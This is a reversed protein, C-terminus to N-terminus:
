GPFRTALTLAAVKQSGFGNNRKVRGSCKDARCRGGAPAVRTRSRCYLLRVSFKTRSWIDRVIGSCNAFWHAAILWTVYFPAFGGFAVAAVNAVIGLGTSRIRVPFQEAFTTALPGAFAGYLSCLVIQMILLNAFSPSAHVWALLPYALGLFPVLAGILIPKRGMRDSLAGFLPVLAASCALGISQAILAESLPFHLQTSAFTPMYLLIVYISINAGSLLGICIAVEKFHTV